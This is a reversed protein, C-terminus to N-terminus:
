FAPEEAGADYDAGYGRGKMMTRDNPAAAPEERGFDNVQEGGLEAAADEPSMGQEFAGRITDMVQPSRMMSRDMGTDRLAQIVQTKFRVFEMDMAEHLEQLLM